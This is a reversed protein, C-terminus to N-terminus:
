EVTFFCNVLIGDDDM